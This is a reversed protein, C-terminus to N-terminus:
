RDTQRPKRGAFRDARIEAGRAGHYIEEFRQEAVLVFPLQLPEPRNDLADVGGTLVQGVKRVLFQPGSRVIEPLADPLGNRVVFCTLFRQAGLQTAGNGHGLLIRRSRVFRRKRCKRLVPDPGIVVPFEGRLLVPSKEFFEIPQFFLPQLNDLFHEVTHNRLRKGDDLFRAATHQALM